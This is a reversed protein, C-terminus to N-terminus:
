AAEVFSLQGDDPQPPGYEALVWVVGRRGSCLRDRRGSDVVIKAAGLEAIRSRVQVPSLDLAEAVADGTRGDAGATTIAARVRARISSAIDAVSDGAERSTEPAGRRAGPSNPYCNSTM